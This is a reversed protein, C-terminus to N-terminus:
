SARPGGEREQTELFKLSKQDERLPTAQSYMHLSVHLVIALGLSHAHGAIGMVLVIKGGPSLM